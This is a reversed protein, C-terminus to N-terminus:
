IKKQTTNSSRHRGDCAVTKGSHRTRGDTKNISRLVYQTEAIPVKSAVVIEFYIEACVKKV